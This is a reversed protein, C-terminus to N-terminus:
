YIGQTQREKGTLQHGITKDTICHQETGFKEVYFITQENKEPLKKVTIHLYVPCQHHKCHAICHFLPSKRKRSERQKVPHYEFVFTCIGEVSPLTM